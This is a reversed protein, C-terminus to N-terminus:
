CKGVQLDARMKRVAACFPPSKSDARALDRVQRSFVGKVFDGIHAFNLLRVSRSPYCKSQARQSALWGDFFEMSDAPHGAM